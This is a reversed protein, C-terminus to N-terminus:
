GQAAERTRGRTRSKSANGLLGDARLAQTAMGMAMMGIALAFFGGTLSQITSGFLNAEVRRRKGNTRIVKFEPQSKKRQLPKKKKSKKM